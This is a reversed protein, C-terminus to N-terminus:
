FLRSPPNKRADGRMEIVEARLGLLGFMPAWLGVFIGTAYRRLESAGTDVLFLYLSALISLGALAYWLTPGTLSFSSRSSRAGIKQDAVSSESPMSSQM